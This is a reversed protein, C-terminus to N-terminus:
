RTSAWSLFSLFIRKHISPGKQTSQPTWDFKCTNEVQGSTTMRRPRMGIHLHHHHQIFVLNNTQDAGLAM